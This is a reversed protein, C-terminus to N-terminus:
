LKISQRMLRNQRIETINKIYDDIIEFRSWAVTTIFFILLLGSFTIDTALNVNNHNSERVMLIGVTISLIHFGILKFLTWYFELSERESKGNPSLTKARHLFYILMSIASVISGILYFWKAFIEIM